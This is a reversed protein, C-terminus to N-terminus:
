LFKEDIKYLSGVLGFEVVPCIDRIFRADSTGGNTSLNPVLGTISKTRKKIIRSFPWSKYLPEANCFYDFSYNSINLSKFKETLM